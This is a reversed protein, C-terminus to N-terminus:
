SGIQSSVQQAFSSCFRKQVLPGDESKRRRMRMGMIVKRRMRMGMVKGEAYAPQVLLTPLYSSLM